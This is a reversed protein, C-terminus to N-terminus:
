HEDNDEAAAKREAAAQIRLAGPSAQAAATPDRRNLEQQTRGSNADLDEQGVDPRNRRNM